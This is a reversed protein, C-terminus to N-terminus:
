CNMMNNYNSSYLSCNFIQLKHVIINNEFTLLVFMITASFTMKYIYNKFGALLLLLRKLKCWMETTTFMYFILEDTFATFLPVTQYGQFTKWFQGEHIM